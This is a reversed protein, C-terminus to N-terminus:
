EPIVTNSYLKHDTWSAGIEYIILEGQTNDNVPIIVTANSQTTFTGSIIAPVVGDAIADMLTELTYGPAFLYNLETDPMPTGTNNKITIAAGNADSSITFGFGASMVITVQSGVAVLTGSAPGLGILTGPDYTDSTEYEVVYTLGAADMAGTITEEDTVGPTGSPVEVSDLVEYYWSTINISDGAIDTVTGTVETSSATGTPTGTIINRGNADQSISVGTPLNMAITLTDGEADQFYVGDLIIDDIAVDKTWTQDPITDLEEPATNNVYQVTYDGADEDGFQMWAAASYDYQRKLFYQRGEVVNELWFGGTDTFNIVVDAPMVSESAELYDGTATGPHLISDEPLSGGDLDVEKYQYGTPPIKVQDQYSLVNTSAAAHVDYVPFELPELNLKSATAATVTATAFDEADGDSANDGAHIQTSSPTSSNALVAVISATGDATLAYSYEYGGENPTLTPTGSFNTTGATIEENLVLLAGCARGAGTWTFTRDGIDAGTAITQTLISIGASIGSLSNFYGDVNTMGSAAHDDIDYQSNAIIGILLTNDEVSDGDVLLSEVNTTSSNNHGLLVLLDETNFGAGSFATGTVSTGDDTRVKTLSVTAPESAGAIKTQILLEPAYTSAGRIRAVQTWGGVVNLLSGAFGTTGVRALSAIILIDGESHSPITVIAPTTNSGTEFHTFSGISATM